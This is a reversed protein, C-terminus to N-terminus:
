KELIRSGDHGSYDRNSTNFGIREREIVLPRGKVQTFIWGVYEGIIGIFFLQVSLFFFLGVLTPATGATFRDWYVLKLILYTIAVLLSIASLCFGTMTALRLPVKSHSTVGLMGADFLTYFNNKTLGRERRPKVFHVQAVEYGIESLQGRFYPYPDNLRRVQDMIVRDYLGFGTFDKIVPVESVLDLVRYYIWRLNRITFSAEEQQKVGVVIKFGDEWRRIFDPILEPPDQLDSAMYITADADTVCLAHHPSRFHGFNRSNVIGRVEPFQSSLERLIQVTRDTSANDIILLDWTYHTFKQMQESVRRHLERLNEEENYTPAVVSIHKRQQISM